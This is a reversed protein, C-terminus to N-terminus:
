YKEKKIGMSFGIGVFIQYIIGKKYWNPVKENSYITIQYSKPDNFYTQGEGGLSEIYQRYFIEVM